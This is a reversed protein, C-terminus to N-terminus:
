PEVLSPDGLAHRITAVLEEDTSHAKILAGEVVALREQGVNSGSFVIVPPHRSAQRMADFLDWGSGDPLSIDLLVLDYSRDAIREHAAALTAAGETRAFPELLMAVVSRLGADDEVHLVFPRKDKAGGGPRAVLGAILQRASEDGAEYVRLAPLEFWFTTGGMGTTDEVTRTTFGIEGGHHEVIAKAISLGLGSGGKKRTDSSDAQSFKQFIRGRFAIPIGPGRDTVSVRLRTGTSKVSIEVNSGPPAYKAANSVLNAIVQLLRDRDGSVMAAPEEQALVFVCGQTRAYGENDVLSQRVVPMLEMPKMDFDMKGSEIKEIDLIDNILRILRECNNKAVSVLNKAKEPLVGAVGGEILGLSGRISTLPTRLEHSVTSVFENKLRALRKGESVDTLFAYLGVVKGSGDRDPICVIQLDRRDGAAGTQSREWAVVEGALVRKIYPGTLAYAKEGIVERLTRGNIADEKVAMWDLMVKNHYRYREEHDLYSVMAPINDTITRLFQESERLRAGSRDRQRRYRRALRDALLLIASAVLGSGIVLALAADGLVRTKRREAELSTSRAQALEAVLSDGLGVQALYTDSRAVELAAGFGQQARLNAVGDMMRFQAEFLARLDKGHRARQEADLTAEFGALDRRATVLEQKFRPVEKEDGAAVYVLLASQAAGMRSRLVSAAELMKETEASARTLGRLSDISWLAAAGVLGLFAVATWLSLTITRSTLAAV